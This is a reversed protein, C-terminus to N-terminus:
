KRFNVFVTKVKRLMFIYTFNIVFIFAPLTFLDNVAWVPTLLNPQISPFVDIYTFRSRKFLAIRM